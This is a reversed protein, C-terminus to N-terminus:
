HQDSITPPDSPPPYPPAPTGRLILRTPIVVPETPPTGKEAGLLQLLLGAAVQSQETVNQAVTTLDIFEAMEHDDIGVVSIDHPVRLGARRTAWLAGIALEDYEALVATPLAPRSLLETMAAAGGKIGHPGDVVLREDYEIGAAALANEYGLRRGLSSHFEFRPDDPRGRILGIRRHRLNLLHHVATRATGAEDIGVSPSGPISSGISVLPIGVARLSLTHEETLHDGAAVELAPGDRDVRVLGGRRLPEGTRDGSVQKVAPVAVATQV